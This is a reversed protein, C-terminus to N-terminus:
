IDIDFRFQPRIEPKDFLELEGIKSPLSDVFENINKTQRLIPDLLTSLQNTTRSRLEGNDEWAVYSVGKLTRGAQRKVYYIMVTTLEEYFVGKSIDLAFQRIRKFDGHDRTYDDWHELECILDRMMLDNKTTLPKVKRAYENVVRWDIKKNMSDDILTLALRGIAQRRELKNPAAKVKDYLEVIKEETKM